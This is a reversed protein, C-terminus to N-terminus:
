EGPGYSAVKGAVEFSTDVILDPNVYSGALKSLYQVYSTPLAKISNVTSEVYGYAQDKAGNFTALNKSHLDRGYSIAGAVLGLSADVQSLPCAALPLYSLLHM